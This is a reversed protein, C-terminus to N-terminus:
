NFDNEKHITKGSLYDVSILSSTGADLIFIQGTVSISLSIADNFNGIEREFIFTSLSDAFVSTSFFLNLILIIKKNM